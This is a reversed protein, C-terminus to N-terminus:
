RTVSGTPFTGAQYTMSYNLHDAAMMPMTVVLPKFAFPMASNDPSPEISIVLTQGSIDTPFMVGAPANVIFDEGPFPPAMGTSSFPDADDAVDVASFTGSSIPQGNIVAWGEYKWNSPLTPLTLGTAPSGTSLDLFWIGSLEDSLDATTPTALIVTGSINSFDSGLAAGHSVSVAAQSGSFDGGLIKISSPASDNDPIPEISLVFTTAKDLMAANMTFSSQSLAGNDDVTFTGTSVPAGGVIIWGEYQEASGSAALNSISLTLGKTAAPEDESCSVILMSAMIVSLISKRM